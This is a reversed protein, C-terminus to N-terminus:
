DTLLIVQNILYRHRVWRLLGCVVRRLWRRRQRRAPLVGVRLFTLQVVNIVVGLSRVPLQWRPCKRLLGCQGATAMRRSHADVVRLALRLQAIVPLTSGTGPSLAASEGMTSVLKLGRSLATLRLVLLGGLLVSQGRVHLLLLPSFFLISKSKTQRSRQTANTTEIASNKHLHM